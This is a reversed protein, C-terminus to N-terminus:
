RKQKEAMALWKKKGTTLFMKYSDFAEKSVKEYLVTTYPQITNMERDLHNWLDGTPYIRIWYKKGDTKCMAKEDSFKTHMGNKTYGYKEGFPAGIDIKEEKTSKKPIKATKPRFIEYDRLRSPKSQSQKTKKTM